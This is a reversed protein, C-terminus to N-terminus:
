FRWASSRSPPCRRTSPGCLMPSTKLEATRQASAASRRELEGVPDRERLLVILRQDSTVRDRDSATSRRAQRGSERERIAQEVAPWYRVQDPRLQLAAKAAAIRQDLLLQAGPDIPARASPLSTFAVTQAAGFFPAATLAVAAITVAHRSM